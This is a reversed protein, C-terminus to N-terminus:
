WLPTRRSRGRHTGRHTERSRGEATGRSERKTSVRFDMEIRGPLDFGSDRKRGEQAGQRQGEHKETKLCKQSVWFDVEIRGAADCNGGKDGPFGSRHAGSRGLQKGQWGPIWKSAGRQTWVAKGPVWVGMETRGAADM